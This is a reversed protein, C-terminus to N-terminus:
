LEGKGAAQKALDKLQKRAKGAHGGAARLADLLQDDSFSAMDKQKRLRALVRGENAQQRKRQEPSALKEGEADGNAADAASPKKSTPAAKVAVPVPEPGFVGPKSCACNEATAEGM